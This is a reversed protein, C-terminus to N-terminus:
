FRHKNPAELPEKRHMKNIRYISDTLSNTFEEILEKSHKDNWQTEDCILRQAHSRVVSMAKLFSLKDLSNKVEYGIKEIEEMKVEM